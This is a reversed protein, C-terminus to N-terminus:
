PAVDQLLGVDGGAAPATDDEEAGGARDAPLGALDDRAMGIAELQDSHDGTV